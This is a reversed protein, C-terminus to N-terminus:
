RMARGITGGYDEGVGLLLSVGCSTDFYGQIGAELIANTVVGELTRVQKHEIFILVDYQTFGSV